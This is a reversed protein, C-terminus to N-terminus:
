RPTSTWGGWRLRQAHKESVIESLVMFLGAGMSVLLHTRLGAARGHVDREFGILAGLGGAVLIRVLLHGHDQLLGWDM